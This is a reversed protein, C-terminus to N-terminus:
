SQYHSYTKIINLVWTRRWSIHSHCFLIFIGRTRRRYRALGKRSSKQCVSSLLLFSKLKGRIETEV